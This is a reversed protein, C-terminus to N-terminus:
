PQTTRRALRAAAERLRWSKGEFKLLHGHHMLRDLLPTAVVVDGLLKSWDELPRNSTVMTSGKEYRSMLVDALEDSATAPLRRLFLDDILLIETAKLQARYKRLTGLERAEALDEILQHAERYFVKYGREVALLALAKAVHSKGTGPPGLLLVDERAAIFKLTGLEFIDRKPLRANYSWDLDALTKREPLGSVIYRRGNLRTRRRDLEDQVLWSFAEIFDMEHSAVQLARAELTETMGSLRLGRLARELEPISMAMPEEKDVKAQDARPISNETDTVGQSRTTPVDAEM